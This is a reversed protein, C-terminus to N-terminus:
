KPMNRIADYVPRGWVAWQALETGPNTIGFNLNWLMAPGVYGTNRMWQYFEATWRAQEDLTNDNAYAYAPHLAGGAAWGFETPWVRKGGDGYKLMINRYGEVTSRASWSHHPSDCAGRFSANDRTIFDCAQQWGVSPPVNYGSPHSGIGDAYNKLGNRYMGELYQFDDIALAGVNGAPTLAGSIVMMQPCAAKISAYARKLLEMYRAPDLPENGWEYHLNQENWVEIAKVKGCYRGAYAGVFNAYTQPDAPPGEVGFDTNGPRAWNPAKVISVLINLGQGAFFNVIDDQWGYAGPSGEMDKWPAQWKVWNFGAGKIASAAFGLDAGGYPQIQMGYGFSGGGAPRPAPPNSGGSAPAAPQAPAAAVRVPPAPIDKAVAVQDVPGLARVRDATIWVPKGDAGELQWWSGNENKGLIKLQQGAALQGATSYETGPGQRLNTVGEAVAVAYPLPTPTPTVTPTPTFEPTPTPSPTFTAVAVPAPEQTAIPEGNKMLAVNVNYIGPQDPIDLDVPQNLAAATQAVVAGQPDTVTWALSLPAEAMSPSGGSVYNQLTSWTGSDIDDSELSEVYVGGLNYRNALSVKQALSSADELFVIRESGGQDLYRYWSIGTAPDFQLQSAVLPSETSVQIDEGPQIVDSNTAVEGALPALAENYGRFIFYNGAQEVTRAPLRMQLKSRDVEDTAWTLLKEMAGGPAYDLPNDSGPIILHDASAGLARWDYGYTEWADDALQAPADVFVTLQKGDQHLRTALNSVFRSFDNRLPPDVGRYDIAIGEYPGSAALEALTNVQIEQMAGDILLNALLDTRPPQGPEYNRATAFTKYPADAASPLDTVGDVSGDGRLLLVTPYLITTGPVAESPLSKGRPLDVGAIPLEPSTQVVTFATPVLNVDVEMREEDPVLKSPMWEWREGNWNYVDLTEYPLSDNPIPISAASREPLDGHVELQYIPSRLRLNAPLQAAAQRMEESTDGREFDARPLSTLKAFTESDPKLGDAPFIIQTGDPDSVEGSAPDIPTFGINRIRQILEVPPLLLVLVVLMPIIVFTFVRGTTKSEFVRGFGGLFSSDQM